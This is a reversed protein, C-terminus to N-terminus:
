VALHEKCSFGQPCAFGKTALYSMGLAIQGGFHVIAIHTYFSIGRVPDVPTHSKFLLIIIGKQEMCARINTKSAM